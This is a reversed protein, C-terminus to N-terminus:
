YGKPDTPRAAALPVAHGFDGDIEAGTRTIAGGPAGAAAQPRKIGLFFELDDPEHVGDTPLIMDKKNLPKVLHATILIVLESQDKQYSSSKFLNGLVPIDGIWPYKDVSERGEEKLLGAIAFTQGNRLEVSTSARRTLVAPIEFSNLKIARTYDLDSVEPNVQLSIVEGAVTPTFKLGVGFEKWEISTTGLGSPVPVPIEGGALFKASQGNLCVLNPEALIRVLGNQKLLDLVATMTTNGTGGWNTSFRMAATGQGLAVTKSQEPQNFERFRTQITASESSSSNDSGTFKITSYKYSNQVNDINFVTDALASLGGLLTYGFNGDGVANLNIGMRNVVSKSMEAVRVELMVQQVGSVSLLNLVKKPAYVEALSLAKKLSEADRVTGSLAISDQSALVEIGTEGPMVDHLMKKLRSADPAVDLDYVARIKDGKDWLTLNTIGPARGTVYIQRPSLLVFDAVDPQAVSVRTIDADSQLIVSKGITLALRPAARVAVPAVGGWVIQAPAALVLSLAIALARAWLRPLCNRSPM